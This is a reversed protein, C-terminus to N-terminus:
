AGTLEQHWDAFEERIAAAAAPDLGYAAFQKDSYRAVRRLADAFMQEDFGADNQAALELLRQRSYGAKLLGDVDIADRVEARSFLAGTKGAAVDDRHLVPGLDSAVPPHHLFEAVLEVKSQFGTAPDTVNMRAYTPVQQAVEVSYGAAEYAAAARVVAAPMEKAARDIPAFLDVDDSLRDVIHHAQVAYGGALAYGYDEALADLGITILRRHLDDM